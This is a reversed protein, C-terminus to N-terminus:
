WQVFVCYVVGGDAESIKQSLVANVGEITPRKAAKDKMCEQYLRTINEPFTKDSYKVVDQIIRGFSYIDSSYSPVAEGTVLDPAIHAHFQKYDLQEKDTLHYKRAKSAHICKGFDIIVPSFLESDERLVVIIM